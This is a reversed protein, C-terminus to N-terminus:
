IYINQNWRELNKKADIVAEDIEDLDIDDERSIPKSDCEKHYDKVVQDLEDHMINKDEISCTNLIKMALTAKKVSDAFANHISQSVTLLNNEDEIQKVVREDKTSKVSVKVILSDSPIDFEQILDNAQTRDIDVFHLNVIPLECEKKLKESIVKLVPRAPDKITIDIFKRKMPINIKQINSLNDTDIILYGKGQNEEDKAETSSSREISGPYMIRCDNELYRDIKNHLHGILVIDFADTPIDKDELEFGFFLDTDISQHLMLISKEHKRAETALKNIEEILEDKKSVSHYDIGGIFLDLDEDINNIVQSNGDLLTFKYDDTFLNDIPYYDKKQLLTHNGIISYMPIDNEKLKKLGLRFQNIAAPSPNPIDFIDGCNLVLDVKNKIMDNIINHYAYYFDNEREHLKYQRYGLHQDSFVAILM